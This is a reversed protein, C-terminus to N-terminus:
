FAYSGSTKYDMVADEIATIKDRSLPVNEIGGSMKLIVGSNTRDYYYRLNILHSRYCIFFGHKTLERAIDKLNVGSLRMKSNITHMEVVHNSALFYVIRNCNITDRKYIPLDDIDKEVYTYEFYHAKKRRGLIVDVTNDFTEQTYPKILYGAEAFGSINPWNETYSTVFVVAADYDPPLASIVDIGSVTPMRVDIFIFDVNLGKNLADLFEQGGKFRAVTFKNNQFHRCKRIAANLADLAEPIDDCIAVRIEKEM